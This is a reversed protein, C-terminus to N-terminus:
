RCWHGNLGSILTRMSRSSASVTLRVTTSTVRALRLRKYSAGTLWRNMVTLYSVHQKKCQHQPGQYGLVQRTDGGAEQNPFSSDPEAAPM